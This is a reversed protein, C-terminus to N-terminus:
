AVVVEEGERLPKQSGSDLESGSRLIQVRSDVVTGLEVPVRKVAGDRVVEVAYTENATAFIANVPVVLTEAASEPGQPVTVRVDGFSPTSTLSTLDLDILATPPIPSDNVTLPAVAPVIEAITGAVEQGDPLSVRVLTGLALEREQAPTLWAMARVTASTFTGPSAGAQGLYASLDNIRIGASPTFVVDAPEVTGTAPLGLSSQWTRVSEALDPSFVGDIGGSYHGLNSLNQQLQRVDEGPEIGATMMRWAPRAGQLLIAPRGDVEYIPQGVQIIAAPAPLATIVGAATPLPAPRGFTLSGNLRFQGALSTFEVPTTVPAKEQSTEQAPQHWPRLLVLGVALILALLLGAAKLARAPPRRPTQTPATTM